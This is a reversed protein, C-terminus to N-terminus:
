PIVLRQGVYITYPYGLDNAAALVNFTMNYKLAIRFLNEGPQVVHYGAGAQPPAPVSEGSPPIKLDQGVYIFNPSVIGNYAALEEWGLGYNLAIRFLNEGTQVTHTGAQVTSPPETAEAPEPAETPEPTDTPPATPEPAQTPEPTDAPAAETDAPATTAAAAAEDALATRTIALADEASLGVTPTPQPESPQTAAAASTEGATPEPPSSSKARTCASVLVLVLVLALVIGMLGSFRPINRRM